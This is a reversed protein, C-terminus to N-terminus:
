QRAFPFLDFRNDAIELVTPVWLPKCDKKELENITGAQRCKENAVLLRSMVHISSQLLACSYQRLNQPLPDGERMAQLARSLLILQISDLLQIIEDGFLDMSNPSCKLESLGIKPEAPCDVRDFSISTCPETETHVLSNKWLMPGEKTASSSM